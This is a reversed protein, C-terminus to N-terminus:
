QVSFESVALAPRESANIVALVAPPVWVLKGGFTRRTVADKNEPKSPPKLPEM